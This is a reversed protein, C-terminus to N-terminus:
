ALPPRSYAIQLFSIFERVASTQESGTRWALGIDMSPVRDDINRIEIREGELSWPRYVMDSLITVGMGNAVLSRVAEVSSTELIVNPTLAAKNWYRFATHAAEDVTLLIYPHPAVDALTVTKERLLEHGPSLWLRRPSRELVQISIADTKDVNSVLMVALDLKGAILADELAPRDLQEIRIEVDPFRRRIRALHPALFYGIVTYTVGVRIRGAAKGERRRFSGTAESVSALVNRAKPLFLFGEATLNVGSPTREFLQVGLQDELAKLSLTIASQSVGCESAAASLKGTEVAALFYRIQRLTLSM